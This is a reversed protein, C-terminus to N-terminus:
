RRRWIQLRAKIPPCGYYRCSWDGRGSRCEGQALRVLRVVENQAMAARKRLYQRVASVTAGPAAMKEDESRQM